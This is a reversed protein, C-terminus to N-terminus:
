DPRWASLAVRNGELSTFTRERCTLVLVQHREAGLRLAAFMREIRQDDAYVLADDLILPAPAGTEALLLGFGLRVLVALQEQTGESLSTLAEVGDARELATLAFGDGLHARADPFVLDLYPGLRDMVPKAFRDRASRAAAELERALLQLAAIERELGAVRADAAASAEEFEAVRAEVDDARDAKLEGEIGAETRRLEELASQAKARAAEATEAAVKLEAFRAEDPATERWAASDRVAKNLAAEADAVGAAIKERRATRTAADGLGAVHAEIQSRRGAIVARMQVLADRADSHAVAAEALGTEADSLNETLDAARAELEELTREPAAASQAALEAHARELRELGDPVLTELRTGAEALRGAIERREVLRQEAADVSAAGIRDLLDKLQMNHAALDAEDEAMSESRGPAVTVVGIGEIELTVPKTPLLTEGDALARGEVKINGKAGRAYGISVSPAAASLRAEITAIGQAERRAAAVLPEEAGNGALVESLTEREAAAARAAELRQTVEQLRVAVEIARREREAAALAARIADRRQRLEREKAEGAGVRRQLEEIAPADRAAAAELKSLDALKGDLESLSAKRMEFTEQQANRAEEARRCQERAAGAEELARKATVAAELRGAVAAPDSLRALAERLGELRDLRARARDLRGQADARQRGLADQEELAAKYRGTPRPVAHSTVLDALEDKVSAQVLRAVGGDVVSKVEDEIAAMFPATATSTAELPLLSKGQDVWLLAIRDASGAGALLKALETEADGGRSVKGGKRLEKLEAAPASLFQKRLRWLAGDIELDLEVLPAGGAYPRFAELKKAKSKHQEFLALRVAKLITSKGLENPGALVDLGGSLGELAVAERFRGVEKLRIAKLKV